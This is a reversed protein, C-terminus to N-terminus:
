DKSRRTTRLIAAIFLITSVGAGVTAETFAVDVAGMEAWLLCMMFSYVGFIVSAGLLDKITITALACIVVLVLILLDVQWIM